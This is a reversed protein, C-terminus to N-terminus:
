HSNFHQIKIPFEVVGDKEIAKLIEIEYFCINLEWKKNLAIGMHKVAQCFIQHFLLACVLQVNFHTLAMWLQFLLAKM